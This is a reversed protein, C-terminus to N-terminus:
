DGGDGDVAVEPFYSKVPQSPQTHSKLDKVEIEIKRTKLVSTTTM